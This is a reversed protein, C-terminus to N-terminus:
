GRSQEQNGVMAGACKLQSDNPPQAPWRRIMGALDLSHNFEALYRVMHKERMARDTGAISTKIDDFRHHQGV